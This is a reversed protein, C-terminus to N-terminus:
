IMKIIWKALTLTYTVLVVNKNKGFDLKKVLTLLMCPTKNILLNTSSFFSFIYLLATLPSKKSLPRQGALVV